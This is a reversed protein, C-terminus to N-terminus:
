IEIIPNEPWWMQYVYYERHEDLINLTEEMIRNIENVTLDKETKILHFSLNNNTVLYYRM